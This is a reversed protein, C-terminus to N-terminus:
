VNNLGGCSVSTSPPPTPCPTPSSPPPCAGWGGSSPPPFTPRGLWPYAPLHAALHPFPLGTAAALGLSPAGFLHAPDFLGHNPSPAPKDEKSM